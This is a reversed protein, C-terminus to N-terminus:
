PTSAARLKKVFAGFPKLEWAEWVKQTAVRFPKTDPTSIMVSPMKRYDELIREEAEDYLRRQLVAAEQAAGRVMKRDASSLRDWAARSILVPAFSYRHNTIAVFRQTEHMKRQWIVNLSNEQGDVYGIRIADNLSGYSVPVAQGGLAAMMDMIPKDATTRIRLGRMDEPKLIPRKSNTFHRGGNSMWALVILGHIEIREALDNGLPGELMNWIKKPEPFAYPLGLADVEPVASALTGHPYISMDLKGTRLDLLVDLSEDIKGGPNLDVVIRGGSRDAVLRAFEDTAHARPTKDSANHALALRIQGQALATPVGFSISAALVLSCGLTNIKM